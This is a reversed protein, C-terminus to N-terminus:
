ETAYVVEWKMDDLAVMMAMLFMQNQWVVDPAGILMEAFKPDSKMSELEKRMEIPLPTAGSTVAIFVEGVEAMLLTMYRKSMGPRRHILMCEMEPRLKTHWMQACMIPTFARLEEPFDPHPPTALLIKMFREDRPRPISMGLFGPGLSPVSVQLFGPGLSLTSSLCGM